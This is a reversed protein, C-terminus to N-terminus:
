VMITINKSTALAALQSWQPYDPNNVNTIKDWVDAHVTWTVATGSNGAQNLLLEMNDFTVQSFHELHADALYIVDLYKLTLNATFTNINNVGVFFGGGVREIFCTGGSFMQTIDIGANSNSLANQDAYFSRVDSCGNFSNKLSGNIKNSKLVFVKSGCKRELYYTNLDYKDTYNQLTQIADEIGITEGVVSFTEANVDVSANYSTPFVNLWRAITDAYKDAFSLTSLKSDLESQLNTISGIPHADAADRQLLDNHISAGGGTSNITGDPEITINDGAILTKQKDALLADTEAKTYADVIQVPICAFMVACTSFDGTPQIPTIIM